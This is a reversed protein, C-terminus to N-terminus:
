LRQLIRQRLLAFGARGFMMRKMLKMRTVQGETQGNSESRSLGARVAAYDRRIGSAFGILESPGRERLRKLWADLPEARRQRVMLVFQQSLEYAYKMEDSSQCIQELSRQQTPSLAEPRKIFLFSAQRSSLRRSAPAPTTRKPGRTRRASTPSSARWDSILARLTTPSGRYNRQQLERYLQAANQCGAEWLKRLYPLYPDLLSPRKRRPSQELFSGAELYRRITNRSLGTERAIARGGFGQQHLEVVAQYREYRKGRRGQRLAQARAHPMREGAERHAKEPQVEQKMSAMGDRPEPLPASESPHLPPLCQRQRDLLRQLADRLNAVLHYRDAVQIADPAGRKAGEAYSSARDRSVVEVGPHERLWGEFTEAERDPLLDIPLHAELDVLITRTETEKEGPM